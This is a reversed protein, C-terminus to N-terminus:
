DVKQSSAHILRSVAKGPNSLYYLGQSIVQYINRRRYEYIPYIEGGFKLKFRSIGPLDTVPTILFDFYNYDNEKAWKIIEWVLLDNPRYNRHEPSSSNLWYYVTDRHTIIMGVAIPYDNYMASFIHASPLKAIERYYELPSVPKNFARLTKELYGHLIGLHDANDMVVSVGNKYAKNVNCRVNKYEFSNWLTDIDPTLDTIPTNYVHALNGFNHGAHNFKPPLTFVTSKIRGLRNTLLRDIPTEAFHFDPSFLPGGYVLEHEMSFSHLDWYLHGKKLFFPLAYDIKNEANEHFLYYVRDRFLKEVIFLWDTRHFPTSFCCSSVLHDIGDREHQTLESISKLIM